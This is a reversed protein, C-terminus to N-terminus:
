FSRMGAPFVHWSTRKGDKIFAQACMAMVSSVLNIFGLHEGGECTPQGVVSEDDIVFMESWMVRGFHGDASLGGHLCAIGRAKAFDQIIRRTAGNDVCDLVLDADGLLQEVNEATLKHPVADIKLGYFGMMSQQIAQAKNRGLSMKTHMQSAVNKQEVRDFDIVKWSVELNRCMSLVHSGLAGVGVMVVKM